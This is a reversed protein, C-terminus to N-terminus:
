RQWCEFTKKTSATVCWVTSGDSLPSNRWSTWSHRCPSPLPPSPFQQQMPSLIKKDALTRYIVVSMLPWKFHLYQLAVARAASGKKVKAPFSAKATGSRSLSMRPIAIRPHRPTTTPHDGSCTVSLDSWPSAIIQFVNGTAIYTRKSVAVSHTISPKCCAFTYGTEGCRFCHCRSLCLCRGTRRTVRFCYGNAGANATVACAACPCVAFACTTASKCMPGLPSGNVAYTAIVRTVPRSLSATSRGKSGFGYWCPVRKPLDSNNCTHRPSSM